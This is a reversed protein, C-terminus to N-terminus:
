SGQRTYRRHSDKTKRPPWTSNCPRRKAIEIEVWDGSYDGAVNINQHKSHLTYLLSTEISLDQTSPVAKTVGYRMLVM